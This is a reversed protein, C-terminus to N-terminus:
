HGRDRDRSYKTENLTVAYM